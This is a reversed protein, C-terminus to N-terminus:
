GDKDPKNLNVWATKDPLYQWHVFLLNGTSFTSIKALKGNGLINAMWKYVEPDVTAKSSSPM